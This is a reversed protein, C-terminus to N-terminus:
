TIEKKKLIVKNVSDKKLWSVHNKYKEKIRNAARQSIDNDDVLVDITPVPKKHGFYVETEEDYTREVRGKQQNFRELNNGTPTTIIAHDITRISLGVEAKQTGIIFQLKKTKALKSIRKYATDDEYDKLVQLVKKNTVTSDSTGGGGLLLDGKFKSLMLYLVAAHEKREVMILVLKGDRMKKIARRCILINREQNRSAKTIFQSFNRNDDYNPDYYNTPVLSILSLIKSDGNKEEAIYRIPGFTDFTIFEKGDKRKLNASSTYRYKARFNNVTNSVDEIPSKQGEDFFVFGVRPMFFELHDDKSLSHYLCINLDGLKRKGKFIGGVGGIRQPDLNFTKPNIAEQIWQEQLFTTHVIILGPQGIRRWLELNALTKGFSTFCMSSGQNHKLM